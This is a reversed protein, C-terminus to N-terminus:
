PRDRTPYPVALMRKRIAGLQRCEQETLVDLHLARVIEHHSRAITYAFANGADTVYAIVARGDEPDPRRAVFGLRELAEFGSADAPDQPTGPGAHAIGAWM